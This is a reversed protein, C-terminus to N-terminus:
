GPHLRTCYSPKHILSVIQPLDGRLRRAEIRLPQCPIIRGNNGQCKTALTDFEDPTFGYDSMKLNAVGCAEQLKVLMTIFDEPKDAEPMGM